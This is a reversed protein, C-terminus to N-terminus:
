KTKVPDPVNTLKISMAGDVSKDFHYGLDSVSVANRHIRRRTLHM